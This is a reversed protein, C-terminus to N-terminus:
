ILPLYEDEVAALAKTAWRGASENRLDYWGKAHDEALRELIPRIISRVVGQQLTRHDRAFEEAIDGVGGGNVANSIRSYLTRDRDHQLQAYMLYGCEPCGPTFGLAFEDRKCSPVHTGPERDGKQYLIHDPMAM